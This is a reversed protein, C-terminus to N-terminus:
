TVTGKQGGVFPTDNQLGRQGSESYIYYKTDTVWWDFTIVMQLKQTKSQEVRDAIDFKLM